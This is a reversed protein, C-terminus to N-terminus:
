VCEWYGQVRLAFVALHILHGLKALDSYSSRGRVLTMVVAVNDLICLAHRHRFLDPREILAYLAMSLELQAISTGAAIYTGAPQWLAPLEACNTAVFSLRTQSGSPFLHPPIWRLRPQRSRCCCRVSGFISTAGYPLRSIWTKASLADCSRDGRLLSWDRPDHIHCEGRPTGQRGHPRWVRSARLHRAGLLKCTWLTQISYRSHLPRNSTSHCSHGSSQWPTEYPGLFQCPRDRSLFAIFAIKTWSWKLGFSLM